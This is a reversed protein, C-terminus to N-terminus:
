ETYSKRDNQYQGSLREKLNQYETVLVPNSLLANRFKIYNDLRNSGQLSIHIYHTRMAESGNAFFYDGLIYREGSYEYINIPLSKVLMELQTKSAVEIGIDIIPKANLGPVSTSCIHQIRSIYQGAM